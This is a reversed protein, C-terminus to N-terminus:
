ITTERRRDFTIITLRKPYFCRSFARFTIYICVYCLRLIIFLIENDPSVKQSDPRLNRSHMCVWQDSSICHLLLCCCSSSAQDSAIAPTRLTVCIAIAALQGAAAWPGSWPGAWLVRLVPTVDRTPKGQM